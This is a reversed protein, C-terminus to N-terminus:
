CYHLFDKGYPGKKQVEVSNMFDISAERIMQLELVKTADRYDEPFKKQIENTTEQNHGFAMSFWLAAEEENDMVELEIMGYEFEAIPDGGSALERVKNVKEYNM